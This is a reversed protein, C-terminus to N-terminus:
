TASFFLYFIKFEIYIDLYIDSTIIECGAMSRICDLLAKHFYLFLNLKMVSQHLEQQYFIRGLM